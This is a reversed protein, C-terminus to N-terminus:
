RCLRYAHEAQTIERNYLLLSRNWEEIAGDVRRLDARYREVLDERDDQDLLRAENRDIPGAALNTRARNLARWRDLTVNRSHELQAIQQRVQNVNRVQHVLLFRRYEHWYTRRTAMSLRPFLPARCIQRLQGLFHEYRMAVGGSADTELYRVLRNVRDDFDRTEAEPDTWQHPRPM